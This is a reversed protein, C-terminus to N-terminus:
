HIRKSLFTVSYRVIGVDRVSAAGRQSTSRAIGRISGFIREESETHLSSPAIIRNVEPLHVTLSHYYIGYIKAIKPTEGFIQVCRTAHIFTVNYLRLVSKSTRSLSNQYSLRTIEVLTYLLDDIERSCKGKLRQYVIIASYRYDSGRYQDKDGLAINIEDNFISKLDQTLHNPLLEWLNRIHGKIDHM